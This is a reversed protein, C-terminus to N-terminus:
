LGDCDDGHQALFFIFTSLPTNIFDIQVKVTHQSSLPLLRLDTQLQPHISLSTSNAHTPWIFAKPLLRRRILPCFHVRWVSTSSPICHGPFLSRPISKECFLPLLGTWVARPQHHHRSPHLTPLCLLYTSPLQFFPHAVLFPLFPSLSFCNRPGGTHKRWHRRGLRLVLPARYELGKQQKLGGLAPQVLVQVHEM